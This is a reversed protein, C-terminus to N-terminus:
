PPVESIGIIPYGDPETISRSPYFIFSLITFCLGLGILIFFENTLREGKEKNEEERRSSGSRTAAADDELRPPTAADSNHDADDPSHKEVSRKEPNGRERM